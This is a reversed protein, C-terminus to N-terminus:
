LGHEAVSLGSHHSAWTSPHCYGRSSVALSLQACCHLGLTTLFLLNLFNVGEANNM